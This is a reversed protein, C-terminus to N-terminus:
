RSAPAICTTTSDRGPTPSSRRSACRSGSRWGQPPGSPLCPISRCPSATRRGHGRSSRSHSAAPSAGELRVELRRRQRREKEADGRAEGEGHDACREGRAERLVADGLACHRGEREGKEGVVELKEPRRHHVVHAQREDAAEALPAAPQPKGAHEDHRGHGDEAEGVGGLRQEGDRHGCDRDADGPRREVDDDVGVADLEELRALEARAGAHRLVAPADAGGRGAAEREDEGRAVAPRDGVEGARRERQGRHQDAHDHALGRAVARGRLRVARQFREEAAEGWPNTTAGYGWKKAFELTGVSHMRDLSGSWWWNMMRDSTWGVVFAEVLEGSKAAALARELLKVVNEHITEKDQEEVPRIHPKETM